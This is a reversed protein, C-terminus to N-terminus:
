FSSAAELDDANLWDAGNDALVQWIANRAFIPWEPTDWFRAKIGLAHADAIFRTLNGLQSDSINGIGSWGIASEWDTSALPSITSDFTTNLSPDNLQTLPADFFVDRPELAKVGDLPTNGTGVATVQKVTLTGNAFTTLYGKERLPQLAKVVFPLTSPGDTKMDILLQLPLGGDMDFVGNAGTQNVTFPSRHNTVQLVQLIPQVYLSDFTRDKTLAQVEHGVFLTGNVLWVDAEVSAVGLSLATLLPVDRWYDNHSHIAKPVINQTIQTPYQILTSNAEKLSLIQQNITARAHTLVVLQALLALVTQLANFKM